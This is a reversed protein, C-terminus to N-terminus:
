AAEIVAYAGIAIGEGLRVSRGVVAAAHVGTAAEASRLMRAARAFLLRPQAGVLLIKESQASAMKASLIVAAAGSAMASKLSAADEAFVLTERSASAASAVGTVEADANAPRLEAGLAKALESLKM